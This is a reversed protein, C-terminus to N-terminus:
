RKCCKHVGWGLAAGAGFGGAYHWFGIGAAAVMAEPAFLVFAGVAMAGLAGYIFMTPAEEPLCALMWGFASMKSPGKLGMPDTSNIPSNSLYTLLNQTEAVTSTANLM